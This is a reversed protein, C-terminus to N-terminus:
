HDFPGEANRLRADQRHRDQGDAPRHRVDRRRQRGAFLQDRPGARRDGGRHRGARRPRRERGRRRGVADPQVAGVPGARHQQAGTGARHQSLQGRDDGARRRPVRGAESLPRGCGPLGAARYLRRDDGRRAGGDPPRGRRAP